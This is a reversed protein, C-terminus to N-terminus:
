EEEKLAAPLFKLHERPIPYTSSYRCPMSLIGDKLNFKRYIKWFM